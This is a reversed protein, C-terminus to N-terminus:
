HLFNTNCSKRSVVCLPDGESTSSIIPESYNSQGFRNIASVVVTYEKLPSLGTFNYKAESTNKGPAGDIQVMYGTAPPLGTTVPDPSSWSLVIYTPGRELVTLNVPVSPAQFLFPPHITPVCFIFFHLFYSIPTYIHGYLCLIQM